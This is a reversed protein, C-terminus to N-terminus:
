GLYFSQFAVFVLLLFTDANTDFIIKDGEPIQDVNKLFTFRNNKFKCQVLVSKYKRIIYLMSVYEKVNKTKVAKYSAYAPYLTGFVLRFVPYIFVYTVTKSCFFVLAGVLVLPKFISLRSVIKGMSPMKNFSLKEHSVKISETTLKPTGNFTINDSKNIKKISNDTIEEFYAKSFSSCKPDEVHDVIFEGFRAIILSLSEVIHASSVEEDNVNTWLVAFKFVAIICKTFENALTSNQKGNNRSSYQIHKDRVKLHVVPTLM